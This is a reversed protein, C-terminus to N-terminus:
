ILVMSTNYAGGTEIELSIVPRFDQGVYDSSLNYGDYAFTSASAANFKYPQKNDPLSWVPAPTTTYPEVKTDVDFWAGWNPIVLGFGGAPTDLGDVALLNIKINAASGAGGSLYPRQLGPAGVADVRARRIILPSKFDFYLSQGAYVGSLLTVVLDQATVGFNENRSSDSLTFTGTNIGFQVSYKAQIKNAM